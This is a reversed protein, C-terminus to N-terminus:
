FKSNIKSYYDYFILPMILKGFFYSTSIILAFLKTFMTERQNIINDMSAIEINIRILSGASFRGYRDILENDGYMNFQLTDMCRENRTKPDMNLINEELHEKEFIFPIDRKVMTIKGILWQKLFESHLSQLHSQKLEMDMWFYYLLRSITQSKGYLMLDRISTLESREVYLEEISTFPRLRLTSLYNCKCKKKIKSYKNHLLDDTEFYTYENSDTHELRSISVSNHLDLTKTVAEAITKLKPPM